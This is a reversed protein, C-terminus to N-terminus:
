IRRSGQHSAYSSSGHEQSPAIIRSALRTGAESTMGTGASVLLKIAFDGVTNETVQKVINAITDFIEGEGVVHNGVYRSKQVIV